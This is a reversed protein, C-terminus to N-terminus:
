PTLLGFGNVSSSRATRVIRCCNEDSRAIWLSTRDATASGHAGTIVALRVALEPSLTTLRGSVFIILLLAM